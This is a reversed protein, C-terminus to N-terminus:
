RLRPPRLHWRDLAIVRFTRERLALRRLWGPRLRAFTPLFRTDAM